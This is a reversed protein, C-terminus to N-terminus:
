LGYCFSFPERNLVIVLRGTLDLRCALRAVVSPQALGAPQIAHTLRHTARWLQWATLISKGSMLSFLLGALFITMWGLWNPTSHPMSDQAMLASCCVVWGSNLFWSLRLPLALLCALCFLLFGPVSVLARFALRDNM